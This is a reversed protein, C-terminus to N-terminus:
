PGFKGATLQEGPLIEAAAVRDTLFHPDAIAGEEVVSKPLVSAVYMANSTMTAGPTGAPITQQAVLVPTPSGLNSPGDYFRAGIAVLLAAAGAVIWLLRTLM